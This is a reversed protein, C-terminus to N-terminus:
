VRPLRILAYQELSSPYPPYVERSQRHIVLLHLTRVFLYCVHSVSFPLPALFIEIFQRYQITPQGVQLIQANDLNAPTDPEEYVEPLPPFSQPIVYGNHSQSTQRAM